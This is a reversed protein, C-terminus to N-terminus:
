VYKCVRERCSGRGIERNQHAAVLVEVDWGKEAAGFDQIAQQACALSPESNDANLGSLDSIIGLRIKKIPAGQARALGGALPLGGAGGAIIGAGASKLLDRRNMTTEMRLTVCRNNPARDILQPLVSKSTHTSVPPPM